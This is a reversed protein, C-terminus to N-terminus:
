LPTARNSYQLRPPKELLWPGHFSPEDPRRALDSQSPTPDSTEVAPVLLASLDMRTPHHTQTLNLIAQPSQNEHNSSRSRLECEGVGGTTPLLLSNSGCIKASRRLHSQLMVVSM